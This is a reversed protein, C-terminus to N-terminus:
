LNEDNKKKMKENEKKKKPLLYEKNIPIYIHPVNERERKKEKEKRKQNYNNFFNIRKKMMKNEGNM